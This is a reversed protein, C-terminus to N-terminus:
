GKTYFRDYGPELPTPMKSACDMIWTIAEHSSQMSNQQVFGAINMAEKLLGVKSKEDHEMLNSRQKLCHFIGMLSIVDAPRLELAKQFYKIAENFRNYRMNIDGVFNHIHASGPCHELAPQLFVSEIKEWGEKDAKGRNMEYHNIWADPTDLWNELTTKFDGTVFSKAAAFIKVLEEVRKEPDDYVSTQDLVSINKKCLFTDDYYTFNEKIIELGSKRIVEKFLNRSWVNVHNKDYYYELTFGGMGFNHLRNFWTPVSIYIVGNDTLSDAYKKLEIDFDPMHEAVKYSMILDYKKSWDAEEKLKINYVWFATRIFSKTLETGNLDAEPFRNRMWNLFLGLAAGIELVKPNKLGSKSWTDIQDKLFNIHYHLKRESSFVNEKTPPTRYEDRYFDKMGKLDDCIKPYTVFGCKKCLSMGTEKHRFRDVNEWQGVQDCIICRFTEM